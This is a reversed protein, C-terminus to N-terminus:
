VYCNSLIFIIFFLSRISPTAFRGHPRRLRGGGVRYETIDFWLPLHDLISLIITITFVFSFDLPLLLLFSQDLGVLPFYNLLNRWLAFAVTLMDLLFTCFPVFFCYVCNSLKTYFIVTFFIFLLLVSEKLVNSFSLKIEGTWM